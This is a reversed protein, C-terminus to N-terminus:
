KMTNAINKIKKKQAYINQKFKIQLCYFYFMTNM